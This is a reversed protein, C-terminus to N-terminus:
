RASATLPTRVVLVSKDTHNVVKAATTGLLRDLKGFGRKM